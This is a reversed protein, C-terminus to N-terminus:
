GVGELSCSSSTNHEGFYYCLLGGVVVMCVCVCVREAVDEHIDVLPAATQGRESM